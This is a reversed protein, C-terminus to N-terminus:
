TSRNQAADTKQKSDFESKYKRLEVQEADSFTEYWRPKGYSPTKNWDRDFWNKAKKEIAKDTKGEKYLSFLTRLDILWSRYKNQAAQKPIGANLALGDPRYNTLRDIARLSALAIDDIKAHLGHAALETLEIESPRSTGNMFGVPDRKMCSMYIELPRGESNALNSVSEFEGHTDFAFHPRKLLDFLSLTWVDEKKRERCTRETIGYELAWWNDRAVQSGAQSAALRYKKFAEADGYVYCWKRRKITIDDREEYEITCGQWRSFDPYHHKIWGRDFKDDEYEFCVAAVALLPVAEFSRRLTDLQLQHHNRM